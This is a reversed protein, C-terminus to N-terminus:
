LGLLNKVPETDVEVKVEVPLKITSPKEEEQESEEVSDKKTNIKESVKDLVKGLLNTSTALTTTASLTTSSTIGSDLNLDVVTTTSIKAKVSVKKPPEVTIKTESEIETKSNILFVSDIKTELGILSNYKTLEGAIRSKLEEDILGDKEIEEVKAKTARFSKEQSKKSLENKEKLIEVEKVRKNLLSINCDRKKVPDIKLLLGLPEILNVKADYLLDGPLSQMCAYTTGSFILLIALASVLVKSFLHKTYPSIISAPTTVAQSYISSLMKEKQEASLSSEKFAKQSNNFQEQSIKM